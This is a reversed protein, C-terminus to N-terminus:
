LGLKGPNMIWNPDLSRKISRLISMGLAGHQLEMYKGLDMGIGHHDNIIGGMRATIEIATEIIEARLAIAKEPDAPPDLVYFRLYVMGGSKSWHSFHAATQLQYMGYRLHLTDRITRYIKLLKDFTAAVDITGYIMPLNSSPSLPPYYHRFRENWWKRAPGDGLYHGGNEACIERAIKEEHEPIEGFGDFILILLAGRVGEPPTYTKFKSKMVEEEDYLRAIAPTVRSLIKIMSKYGEELTRFSFASFIMKEPMPHLQFIAKTIIGLTGESGVFLQVLDPGIAGTQRPKTPTRLVEGNPLVVEIGLVMDEIKGYKTSAVGASRAALMGGVTASFMSAPYHGMTLGKENLKLELEYAIVGAEATVTMAEENIEVRNMLKMDIVIGGYIPMTGSWVGSGGGWPIVPARFSSAIKVIESVEEVNEPFVVIDPLPPKISKFIRYLTSWGTDGVYSHLVHESCSVRDGLLEALRRYVLDKDFPYVRKEDEDLDSYHM